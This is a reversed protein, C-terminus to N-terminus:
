LRLIREANLHCIKEKDVANMTIIDIFRVAEESSEYPYDTAFLIREAGLISYVFQLVPEWYMGSITVYFNDKFYQSLSRILKIRRL